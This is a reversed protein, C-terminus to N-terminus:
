LLFYMRFFYCLLRQSHSNIAFFFHSKLTRRRPAINKLFSFQRVQNMWDEVKREIEGRASKKVLLHTSDLDGHELIFKKDVGKLENLYQIYQKTPIDCSILYGACPPLDKQKKNPSSSSGKSAPSKGGKKKPPMARKAKSCDIRPKETIALSFLCTYTNVSKYKTDAGSDLICPEHSM